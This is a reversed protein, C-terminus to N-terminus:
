LCLCCFRPRQPVRTRTYELKMQNIRQVNKLQFLFQMAYLFRSFRRWLSSSILSINPNHYLLPRSYDLAAVTALARVVQVYYKHLVMRLPFSYLLTLLVCIEVVRREIKKKTQVCFVRLRTTSAGRGSDNSQSKILAMFICKDIDLACNGIFWETLFNCKKRERKRKISGMFWTCQMAM